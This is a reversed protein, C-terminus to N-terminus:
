VVSKRDQESGELPAVVIRTDPPQNALPSGPDQPECGFWLLLPAILVVILLIRRNM